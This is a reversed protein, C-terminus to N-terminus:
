FRLDQALLHPRFSRMESFSEPPASAAPRGVMRQTALSPILRWYLYFCFYFFCVNDKNLLRQYKFYLEDFMWMLLLIRLTWCHKPLGAKRLVLCSPRHTTAAVSSRPPCVCLAASNPGSCIASGCHVPTMALLCHKKLHTKYKFKM